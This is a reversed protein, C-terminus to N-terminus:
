RQWDNYIDETTSYKGAAKLRFGFVSDSRDIARGNGGIPSFHSELVPTGMLNRFISM